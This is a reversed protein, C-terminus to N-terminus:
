QKGPELSSTDTTSTDATSGNSSDVEIGQSKAVLRYPGDQTMLQGHTGQQVDFPMGGATQQVLQPTNLEQTFRVNKINLAVDFSGIEDIYYM